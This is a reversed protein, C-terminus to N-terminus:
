PKKDHFNELFLPFDSLRMSDDMGSMSQHKKRIVNKGVVNKGLVIKGLSM